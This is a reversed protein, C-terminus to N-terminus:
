SANNSRLSHQASLPMGHTDASRGAGGAVAAAQRVQASQLERQVRGLERAHAELRSRLQQNTTSLSTIEAEMAAVQAHALYIRMM